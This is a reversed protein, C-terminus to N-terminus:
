KEEEPKGIYKVVPKYHVEYKVKKGDKGVKEIMKPKSLKVRTGEYPGFIKKKSGNTTEKIFFTVKCKENKKELKHCASKFARVAATSPLLDCGQIRGFTMPKGDVEVIKFHRFTGKCDKATKTRGGKRDKKHHKKEKKDHSKKEKKDHTKSKKGGKMDDFRDEKRNDLRNSEEDLSRLFDMVEDSGGKKHHKKEKKDHTKKEKKEVKKVSKKVSKKETKKHKKTHAGGEQEQNINKILQSLERLEANIKKKDFQNSPM